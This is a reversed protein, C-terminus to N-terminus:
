VWMEPLPEATMAEPLFATTAAELIGVAMGGVTTTKVIAVTIIGVVMTDVRVAGETTVAWCCTM